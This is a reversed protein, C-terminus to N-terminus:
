ALLNILSGSASASTSSGLASYGPDYAAGAMNQMELNTTETQAMADSSAISPSFFSGFLSTTSGATESSPDSSGFLGNAMQLQMAQDSLQVIDSPSAKALEAQMGQSSLLSSVLPPSVGVLMQMLSAIGSTSSVSSIASM